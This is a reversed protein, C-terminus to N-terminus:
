IEENKNADRAAADLEDQHRNLAEFLYEPIEEFTPRDHNKMAWYFVGGSEAVFLSGSYNHVRGIARSNARLTEYFDINQAKM